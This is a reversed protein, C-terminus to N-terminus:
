KIYYGFGDEFIIYNELNKRIQDSLDYKKEKKYLDRLEVLKLIEEYSKNDQIFNPILKFGLIDFYCKLENSDTSIFINQLITSTRFNNELSEIKYNLNNFNKGYVYKFYIQRMKEYKKTVEEIVEQTFNIDNEYNYSLFLYRLIDYNGNWDKLYTFNYLSKSMKESNITLLGIHTWIKASISNHCALSQAIENAHHPFKLDAGGGHIDFTGLIEESMVTCEIHWGPRGKYNIENIYFDFCHDNVFKWLAFDKENKKNTSEIRSQNCEKIEFATYNIKSTDLYIGSDTFYATENNLLKIIYFKMQEIYDSAKPQFNPTLINLNVCSEQFSQIYKNSIEIFSLNEEQAKKLIKDDIDTINMVYTVKSYNYKLYRYLVDYTILLRAHGLHLHDYVTPGCVYMKIEDSELNVEKRTLNDFLKM